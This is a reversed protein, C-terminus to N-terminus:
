LVVAAEVMAEVAKADLADVGTALLHDTSDVLEPFLRALRDPKRDVLVLHSQAALFARAVAQGLNGAAGTVITIKDKLDLM